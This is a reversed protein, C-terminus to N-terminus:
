YAGGFSRASPVVRGTSHLKPSSPNSLVFSSTRGGRHGPLAKAFHNTERGLDKNTTSEVILYLSGGNPACEREGQQQPLLALCFQTRM